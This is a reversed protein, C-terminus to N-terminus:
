VIWISTIRGLISVVTYAHFRWWEIEKSPIKFKISLTDACSLSEARPVQSFVLFACHGWLQFLLHIFCSVFKLDSKGANCAKPGRYDLLPKKLSSISILDNISLNGARHLYGASYNQINPLLQFNTTEHRSCTCASLKRQNCLQCEVSVVRVM